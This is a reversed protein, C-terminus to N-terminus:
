LDTVGNVEARRMAVHDREIRGGASLFPPIRGTAVHGVIDVLSATTDRIEFRRGPGRARMANDRGRRIQRPQELDIGVGAFEALAKAVVTHDIKALMHSRAERAEM